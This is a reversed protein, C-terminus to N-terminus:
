MKLFIAAGSEVLAKNIYRGDVILDAIYRGYRDHSYTFVTIKKAGKLLKSLSSHANKGEDTDIEAADVGRLRMTEDVYTDFGLSMRMKVTDGDIVKLV